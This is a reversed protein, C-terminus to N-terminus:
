WKGTVCPFTQAIQLLDLFESRNVPRAGLTALHTTQQQADIFHFDLAVMRDVLASLAVKSADRELYFMSEGFFAKGLSIGYLGGILKGALYTEVSHAYGMEHLVCYAEIMEPVIWTGTEDRRNSVSCGTIVARFDHDFRTEYNKRRITQSLSKSKKFERPFLIMRPDPSWWMIPSDDGFWPFIGNKYALLLREPSLDGGVALLGDKDARSPDPFRLGDNLLFVAM